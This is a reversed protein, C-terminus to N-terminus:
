SLNCLFIATFKIAVIRKMKYWKSAHQELTSLVHEKKAMVANCKVRKVEKDDNNIKLKTPQAPWEQIPKYLFEPGHIWRKDKATDNFKLGRTTDDSPNEKSPVYLWQDLTSNERIFKIRNSVFLHFRKVENSIYALM